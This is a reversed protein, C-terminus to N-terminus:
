QFLALYSIIANVVCTLLEPAPFLQLGRQGLRFLVATLVTFTPKKALQWAIVVPREPPSRQRWGPTRPAWRHTDGFAGEKALDMDMM